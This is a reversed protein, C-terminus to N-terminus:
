LLIWQHWKYSLITSDLLTVDMNAPESILEAGCV